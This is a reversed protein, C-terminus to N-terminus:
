IKEHLKLNKAELEIVRNKAVNFAISLDHFQSASLASDTATYYVDQAICRAILNENTILINKREIECSKLVIANQQVMNEMGKFVEKM